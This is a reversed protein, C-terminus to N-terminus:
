ALLDDFNFESLDLRRGGGLRVLPLRMRRRRGGAEPGGAVIEREIAAVVLNKLTTGRLAATAKAQRFLQDPLDITTRM